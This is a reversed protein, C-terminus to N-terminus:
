TIWLWEMWQSAGQARWFAQEIASRKPVNAVLQSVGQTEFWTRASEVLLRAAGPYYGHLDLALDSILGLVQPQVGPPASQVCGVLYGVPVTEHEATVLICRSDELWAVAAREWQDRPSGEVRFRPDLESLLLTKEHWIASLLPLDAPLTRRTTLHSM